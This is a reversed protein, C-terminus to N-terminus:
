LDATRAVVIRNGEVRVVEISEGKSIIDGESIVDIREGDILAIGSPRLVTHTTGRKGLLEINEPSYGHWEKTDQQLFMRKGLRSGPFFRAWAWFAIMGVVASAALLSFGFVADHMFGAVIGCAILILGFVGVVGGPLVLEALILVIGAGMLGIIVGIDGM